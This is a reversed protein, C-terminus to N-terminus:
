AARAHAYVRCCGGVCHQKAACLCTDGAANYLVACTLAVRGKRQEQELVLRPSALGVFVNGMRAGVWHRTLGHLGRLCLLGCLRVALDHEDLPEGEEVKASAFFALLTDKKVAGQGFEQKKEAVRDRIAALIFDRAERAKRFPTGPADLQASSLDLEAAACDPRRSESSQFMGVGHLQM